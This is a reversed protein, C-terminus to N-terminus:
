TNKWFESSEDGTFPETDQWSIITPWERDYYSMNDRIIKAVVNENVKGTVKITDTEIAGSFLRYVVYLTRERM